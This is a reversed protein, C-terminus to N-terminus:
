GPGKSSPFQFRVKYHEKHEICCEIQDYFWADEKHEFLECMYSSSMTELSLFAWQSALCRSSWARASQLCLDCCHCASAPRAIEEDHGLDSLQRRLTYEGFSLWFYRMYRWIVAAAICKSRLHESFHRLISVALLKSLLVVSQLCDIYGGSWVALQVM